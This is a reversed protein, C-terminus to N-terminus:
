SRGRCRRWQATGSRRCRPHAAAASALKQDVVPDVPRGGLEDAQGAPINGGGRQRQGAHLAAPEGQGIRRKIRLELASDPRRHRPAAGSQRAPRHRCRRWRRAPATSCPSAQGRAASVCPAPKTPTVPMKRSRASPVLSRPRAMARSGCCGPRRSRGRGACSQRRRTRIRVAQVPWRGVASVSPAEPRAARSSGAASIMSGGASIAGDQGIQGVDSSAWAGGAGDRHAM